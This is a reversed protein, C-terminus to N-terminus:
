LGVKTRVEEIADDLVANVVVHDYLDQAEMETAAITLRAEIEHLSNTGRSELRHRLAEMSPPVIFVYTGDQEDTRLQQTGQVEIELLFTEGNAIADVMPQRLTGYRNGNYEAWELFEGADIRDDFEKRTLFYYDKGDIEGKRQKRTTASVSFAVGPIEKLARCVSTKGAGSPGSIVVLRGSAQHKLQTESSAETPDPIM